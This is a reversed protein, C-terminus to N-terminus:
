NQLLASMKIGFKTKNNLVRKVRKFMEVNGKKYHQQWRGNNHSIANRSFDCPYYGFEIISLDSLPLPSPLSFLLCFLKTNPITVKLKKKASPGKMLIDNSAM